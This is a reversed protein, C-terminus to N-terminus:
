LSLLRCRFGRSELETCLAAQQHEGACTVVVQYEVGGLEPSGDEPGDTSRALLRAIEESDFGSQELPVSDSELDRLELILLADDWEAEEGVRNDALRYARVQSASLGEAVHVPVEAFGLQRAALLRTHGVIVTGREDVVIPQRFGFERISAAVKAVAGANRRPNRAYPTVETIARMEVRM